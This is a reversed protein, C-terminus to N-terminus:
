CFVLVPPVTGLLIAGICVTIAAAIASRKRGLRGILVGGAVAGVVAGVGRWAGYQGIATESAGFQKSMFLTVLGDIGFSAISYVIAYAGFLLFVPQALTKFASWQFQQTADRQRPERARLVWLLPLLMGAAIILFVMRYGQSQVVLGFVLSLLIFGVARGGVMTGQVIGQEPKPTIPWAM